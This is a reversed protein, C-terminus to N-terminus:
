RIFYISYEKVLEMTVDKQAALDPVTTGACMSLELIYNYM